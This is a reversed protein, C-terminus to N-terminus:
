YFATRSPRPKYGMIIETEKEEEESLNGRSANQEIYGRLDNPSLRFQKLIAQVVESESLVYLLHETDVERKGFEVAKEAARQLFEKTQESLYDNLNVTERDSVQRRRSFTDAIQGNDFRDSFFDDLLGGRFLSELPSIYRQHRTLQNYDYDYVDLPKRRGNELVTVRVTAPRRHCIDCMQQAMTKDKPNIIKLLVTHIDILICFIFTSKTFKVRQTKSENYANM